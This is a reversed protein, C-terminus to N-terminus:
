LRSGCFKCYLANPDHGDSACDLCARTTLKGRALATAKGLEVTVIGTPVAIISYGMIMIVSALAMGYPTRPSIDGYGVTTLTVIAWYVSRPISTFGNEPGEILYMFSGLIVVLTAVLILFVTIKQRSARMAHSLQQAEGVYQVVKLVRFIRMVRLVRIVLLYQSGPLLVSIFTPVIALLDVVGYFSTAYKGPRGVCILRFLYEISFLITFFWEARYFFDGYVANIGAVSDLMVILVSALIAAMLIIDFAKGAATDAEFIIEHVKFRLGSHRM